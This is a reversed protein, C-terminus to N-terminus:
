LAALIIWIYIQYTGSDKCSVCYSSHQLKEMPRTISRHMVPKLSILFWCIKYFALTTNQCLHFLFSWTKKCMVNTPVAKTKRRVYQNRVFLFRRPSISRWFKSLHALRTDDFYLIEVNEHLVPDSKELLSSITNRFAKVEQIIWKERTSGVRYNSAVCDVNYMTNLTQLPRAWEICAHFTQLHSSTFTAPQM